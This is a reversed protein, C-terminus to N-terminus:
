RALARLAADRFIPDGTLDYGRTAAEFLKAPHADWSQVLQRHASEDIPPAEGYPEPEGHRRHSRTLAGGAAALSADDLLDAILLVAMPATVAHLTFISPKALLAGAGRRAADVITAMPDAHDAAGDANPEGTPGAPGAWHEWAALGAALEARAAEDDHFRIARVAHATRILGHFLHADLRGILAPVVRGVVDEWRDGRLRDVYGAQLGRVPADATLPEPQHRGAWAVVASPEIGLTLMAEAGMPAHEAFGNPLDPAAVAFRVHVATMAEARNM